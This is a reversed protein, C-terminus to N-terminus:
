FLEHIYRALGINRAYNTRLPTVIVFLGEAGSAFPTVVLSCAKGLPNSEGILIQVDEENAVAEYIEGIHEECHDFVQSITVAQAHDRFEPQEFLYSIGTYYVSNEDFAIIVAGNVRDATYKGAQKIATETETIDERIAQLSRADSKKAVGPMMIHGVYYRYGSETPIRGASTHPHTLYGAEELDRMENRVTADSVDLGAKEVLFKSGVPEATEVYEEIILKLLNEQRPDM